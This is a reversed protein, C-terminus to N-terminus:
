QEMGAIIKELAVVRQSLEIFANALIVNSHLVQHFAHREFDAAKEFRSHTHQLSAVIGPLDVKGKLMDGVHDAVQKKKDKRFDPKEIHNNM